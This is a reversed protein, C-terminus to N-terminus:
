GGLESDGEEVPHGTCAGVLHTWVQVCVADENTTETAHTAQLMAERDKAEDNLRSPPHIVYDDILQELAETIHLPHALGHVYQESSHRLKAAPRVYNGAVRKELTEAIFLSNLLCKIQQVRHSIISISAACWINHCVVRDNIAHAFSMCNVPSLTDKLLHNIFTNLWIDLCIGTQDM